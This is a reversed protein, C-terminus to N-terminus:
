LYTHQLYLYTCWRMKWHCCAHTTSHLSLWDQILLLSLYSIAYGSSIGFLILAKPKGSWKTWSLTPIWIMNIHFMFWDFPRHLPVMYITVCKLHYRVSASIIVPLFMYLLSNIALINFVVFLMPFHGKVNLLIWYGKLTQKVIVILLLQPCVSFCTPM